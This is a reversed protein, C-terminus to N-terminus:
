YSVGQGKISINAEKVLGKVGDCVDSNSLALHDIVLNKDDSWDFEICDGKTGDNKEAKFTVTKNTTDVTADGSAELEKIVNSMVSGNSDFKGTATVYSAIENKATQINSALASIKADTRTAMLKPIAVAALIGLIVIVFILEIMTFGRRM